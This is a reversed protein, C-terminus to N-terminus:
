GRPAQLHHSEAQLIPATTEPQGAELAQIAVQRAVKQPSALHKVMVAQRAGAEAGLEEIAPELWSQYSRVCIYVPRNGRSTMAQLLDKFQEGVDEADPHFFPQVWIGRSGYRLEVYALYDEGQQLVMGKPRQNIAFPEIQQVLGPVLNNYLVRIALADNRTAQRWSRHRERAIMQRTLQWIRQRTYVAFSTQRLVDYTASRDDVDALMRFAGRGGAVAILYELLEQFLVESFLEEPTAFTLHAFPSGALHIMQGITSLRTNEGPQSIATFIGWGPALFSFL